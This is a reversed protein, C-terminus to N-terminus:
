EQGRFIKFVSPEENKIESELVGIDISYEMYKEIKARKAAMMQALDVLGKDTPMIIVNNIIEELYHVVTLLDVIEERLRDFNTKDQGPQKEYLGFRIAKSARQAVEACEEQLQTLLYQEKNLM